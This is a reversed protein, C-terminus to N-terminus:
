KKVKTILDPLGTGVPVPQNLMVNEVVSSLIDEEGILSANIIHKIPTEFSARALVSAKESVVGYRTIGKVAGAFSMTDAILMIHRVDINLGQSETIKNVENIISQRAAEIGLVNSIEFVDNSTTREVDVEKLAFVENLNSGATIIIFEENRKVPLVQTVGKIGKIYVSKLKEKIRYVENFKEEGGKVKITLSGDGKKIVVGKFQKTFAANVQSLDISIEKMKEKNFVVEIKREAINISVEKMIDKATTEKINLALKRIDKGKNYPSKLYIEMMPTKIKKRGDLIEIIRPLGVTVNMEAVGAFHFTNLTMQTGPEGLSEASVLGVSEGPDVKSNAYSLAVRELVKKIKAAPMGKTKEKIEEILKLPLDKYQNYISM